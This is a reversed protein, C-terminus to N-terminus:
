LASVQATLKDLEDELHRKLTEVIDKNFLPIIEHREWATAGSPTEKAPTVFLMDAQSLGWIQQKVGKIATNLSVAKDLNAVKM